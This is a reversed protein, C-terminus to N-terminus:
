GKSQHHLQLRLLPAEPLHSQFESHQLEPQPPYLLALWQALAPDSRQAWGRLEARGQHDLLATFARNPHECLLAADLAASLRVALAPSVKGDWVAPDLALLYGNDLAQKFFRVSERKIDSRIAPAFALTGLDRCWAQLRPRPWAKAASAFEGAPKPALLLAAHDAALWRALLQRGLASDCAAKSLGPDVDAYWGPDVEALLRRLPLAAASM